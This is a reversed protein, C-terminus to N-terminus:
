RCDGKQCAPTWRWRKAADDEMDENGVDVDMREADDGHQQRQIDPSFNVLVIVGKGSEEATNYAKAARVMYVLSREDVVGTVVRNRGDGKELEPNLIGHLRKACACKSAPPPWMKIRSHRYEPDNEVVPFNTKHKSTLPLVNSATWGQPAVRRSGIRIRLCPGTAANSCCKEDEVLDLFSSCAYNYARFKTRALIFSRSNTESGPPFEPHFEWTHRPKPPAYNPNNSSDVLDALIDDQPLSPVEDPTTPEDEDEITKLESIYFTRLQRSSGNQWERRSEVIMPKDTAENIQITLDTWSDHIPGEKHQRRYVRKNVELAAKFPQDLPFRICHYFSTWDLEEVDFSTQNSVAYFYGAHIQFAITSGIDTGFFEELQLPQPCALSPSEEDLSVGRIEWEHHSHSGM